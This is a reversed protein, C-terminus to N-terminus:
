ESHKASKNPGVLVRRTTTIFQAVIVSPNNHRWAIGMELVTVPPSLPVLVVGQTHLKRASAPVLAVATGAAVMGLVLQLHDAEHQANPIFGADRCARLVVDHLVPVLERPPVIFPDNKLAVLTISRKRAARHSAPLAALLPECMLLEIGLSADTVPPFVFGVDLRQDRLAAFQQPVALTQLEVRVAPHERNFGRVARSIAAHNMCYGVGVRLQGAETRGARRAVLAARDARGLIDQAEELFVRGAETLEVRRKTRRLLTTQLEAELQQVQHSLSPQAIHLTAAARGFHLSEAVAVFYRLHRLEM